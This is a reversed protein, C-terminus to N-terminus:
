AVVLWSFTDSGMGPKMHPPLRSIYIIGRKDHQEKLRKLKEETLMKKKQTKLLQKQQERAAADATAATHQESQEAASNPKSHHKQHKESAVPDSQPLGDADLANDAAQQEAAPKTSGM